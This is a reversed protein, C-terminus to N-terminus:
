VTMRSRAIFAMMNALELRRGSVITMLSAAAPWLHQQEIQLLFPQHQLIGKAMQDAQGCFCMMTPVLKLDPVM